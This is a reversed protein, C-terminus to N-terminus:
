VVNIGSIKKFDKDFTALSNISKSKMLAITSCDTFSLAGNKQSKFIQWSSQFIEKDIKVFVTSKLLAEGVFITKELNKTKNFTVTITEDFIYDSIVTEGFKNNKIEQMIKVAKQHNQDSEVEYAILFSSDLFIM